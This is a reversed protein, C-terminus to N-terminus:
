ISNPRFAEFVTAAYRSEAGTREFEAGADALKKTQADVVERSSAQGGALSATARAIAQEQGSADAMPTSNLRYSQYAHKLAISELGKAMLSQYEDNVEPNASLFLGLERETKEFEPFKDLMDNRAQAGRAIPELAARIARNARENILRDLAEVPIAAERLEELAEDRAEVREAPNVRQQGALIERFAKNEAAIRTAEQASSWYGKEFEDITNYKGAFKRAPESAPASTAVPAAQPESPVQSLAAVLQIQEPQATLGPHEFNIGADLIDAM